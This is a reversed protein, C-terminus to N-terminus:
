KNIKEKTKNKATNKKTKPFPIMGAEAFRIVVFSVCFRLGSVASFDGNRFLTWRM